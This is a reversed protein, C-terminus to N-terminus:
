SNLKVAEGLMRRILWKRQQRQYMQVLSMEIFLQNGPSLEERLGRKKIAMPIITGSFGERHQIAPATCLDHGKQERSASKGMETCLIAAKQERFARIQCDYCCDLHIVTFM